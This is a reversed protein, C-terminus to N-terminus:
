CKLLGKQDLWQVVNLHGGMITKESADRTPLINLVRDLWILIHLHGNSAASNAGVREPRILKYALHKIIDLHGHQALWIQVM